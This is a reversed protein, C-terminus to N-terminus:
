SKSKLWNILTTIGSVYHPCNKTVFSNDVKTLNLKVRKMLQDGDIDVFALRATLEEQPRGFSSGPLLAVGTEKLLRDCLEISTYIGRKNLKKRYKGFDPFIYFGGSPKICDIKSKTLKSHTYESIGRLIENSKSIYRDTSLSGNFVNIAAHQVPTSACSFTESAACVLRDKLYNLEEPFIFYGLRWGGIGAWKSLGDSIITGEPYYRALSDYTGNYINEKYIEDSIVIVGFERCVEALERYNESSCMAGTPNSPYNLILMLKENQKEICFKKFDEVDICYNNEKRTNVWYVTRGLLKSQPQYSVWSPSPLVTNGEYMLRTLFFLEKSGPGIVVQGALFTYGYKSKYYKIISDRLEDLGQPNTYGQKTSNVTLSATLTAPAPFPSQGFGFKYVKKGERLLEESVQNIALTPSLQISKQILNNTM